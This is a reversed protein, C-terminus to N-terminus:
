VPNKPKKAFQTKLLFLAKSCINKLFHSASFLPFILATRIKNRKADTRRNQHKIQIWIAKHLTSHIERKTFGKQLLQQYRNDDNNPM